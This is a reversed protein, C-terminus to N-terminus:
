AISFISTADSRHVKKVKTNTTTIIKPNRVPEELGFSTPFATSTYHWKRTRRYGKKCEM